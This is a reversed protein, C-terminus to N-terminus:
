AFILLLLFFLFLLLLSEIIYVVDVSGDFFSEFLVWLIVNRIAESELVPYSLTHISEEMHKKIRIRILSRNRRALEEMFSM